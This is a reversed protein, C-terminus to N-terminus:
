TLITKVGLEGLGQLENEYLSVRAAGTPLEGALSVALLRIVDIKHLVFHEALANLCRALGKRSTRRLKEGVAALFDPSEVLSKRAFLRENRPLRLHESRWIGDNNSGRGIIQRANAETVGDECLDAILESSAYIREAKIYKAIRGGDSDPQKTKRM